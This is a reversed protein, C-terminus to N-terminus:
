ATTTAGPCDTERADLAGLALVTGFSAALCVKTTGEPTSTRSVEGCARNIMARLPYTDQSTKTRAGGKYTGVRIKRKKKALPTMTRGIQSGLLDELRRRGGCSTGRRAEGALQGGRLVGWLPPSLRCWNDHLSSGLSARRDLRGDRQPLHQHPRPRPGM